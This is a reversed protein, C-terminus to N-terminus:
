GRRNKQGSMKTVPSGAPAFLLLIGADTYYFDLYLREEGAPVPRWISHFDVKTVFNQISDYVGTM